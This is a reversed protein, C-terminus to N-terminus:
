LAFRANNTMAVHDDNLIGAQHPQILAPSPTPVTSDHGPAEVVSVDSHQLNESRETIASSITPGLELDSASNTITALSPIRFASPFAGVAHDAGTHHSNYWILWARRGQYVTIVGIITAASGYIATILSEAANSSIDLPM